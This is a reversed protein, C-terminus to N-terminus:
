LKNILFKLINWYAVMMFGIKLIFLISISISISNPADIDKVYTPPYGKKKWLYYKREYFINWAIAGFTYQILDLGSSVVLCWLPFNLLGQIIPQGDGPKKFIWIVAIGALALSRNVSSAQNSFYKTFELFGSLPIGKKQDEIVNFAKQKELLENTKQEILKESQQLIKELQSKLLDQVNDNSTNSEEM